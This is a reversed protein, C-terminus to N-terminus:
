LASYVVKLKRMGAASVVATKGSDGATSSIRFDEIELEGARVWDIVGDVWHVIIHRGSHPHHGKPKNKGCCVKVELCPLLDPFKNKPNRVYGSVKCLAAEFLNGIIASITALDLDSTIGLIGDLNNQVDLVAVEIKELDLSRLYGAYSSPLLDYNM